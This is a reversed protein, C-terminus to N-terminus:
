RAMLARSNRQGRSVRAAVVASRLAHACALGAICAGVVAVTGTPSVTVGEHLVADALQGRTPLPPVVHVDGRRRGQCGYPVMVHLRIAISCTPSSTRENVSWASNGHTKEAVSARSL